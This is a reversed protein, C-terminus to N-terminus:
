FATTSAIQAFRPDNRIPELMPDVRVNSFQLVRFKRAEELYQFAVDANGVQAALDAIYMKRTSYTDPRDYSRMLDFEAHLVGPWGSSAYIHQFQQIEKPDAEWIKKNEIFYEFAEDKKGRLYCARWLSYYTPQFDPVIEALHKLTAIGEEPDGTAAQYDALFWKDWRGTPNLDVAKRGETLAESFKGDQYYAGALIRHALTFDPDLAIARNLDQYAAPLNWKYDRNIMGRITLAVVNDNDIMLAKALNPEAQSFLEVPTGGGQHAIQCYAQAKAAWAAAYKSDLSIAQDLLGMAKLTDKQDYKDLLFIAENYLTYATENNTGHTPNASSTPLIDFRAFLGSGIERAITDQVTFINGAGTESRFTQESTGTEVNVLQSTVRIRGEFIQYTSALVYKVGLERGAAVPDTDIDIFKRVAFLRKVNLDKAESLKLILSDALAFELDQDRNNSVVPRLPLVAISTAAATQPYSRRYYAYVLSGAIVAIALGLVSLFLVRRKRSKAPAASTASEAAIATEEGVDALPALSTVVDTSEDQVSLPDTGITTISTGGFIEGDDGTGYHAETVAVDAVFRYGRKPITQIYGGEKSDDGLAARIEWICKSVAAEEVFSGNWVSDLLEAKEVLQGHNEVLRVLTSFAKPKLAVPDGGRDLANEAPHLRFEGFEYINRNQSTM